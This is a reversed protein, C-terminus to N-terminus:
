LKSFYFHVPQHSAFLRIYSNNIVKNPLVEATIEICRCCNAFVALKALKTVLSFCYKVNYLNAVSGMSVM